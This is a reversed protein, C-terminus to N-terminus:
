AADSRVFLRQRDSGQDAGAGLVYSINSSDFGGTGSILTCTNQDTYDHNTNNARVRFIGHGFARVANWAKGVVDWAQIRAYVTPNGSISVAPLSDVITHVVNSVTVSPLSDVAVHPVNNVSVPLPDNDVVVHPANDIVVHAPNAGALGAVPVAAAPWVGTIMPFEGTDDVLRVNVFSDVKVHELRNYIDSLKTSLSDLVGKMLVMLDYSQQALQNSLIFALGLQNLIDTIGQLAELEGM